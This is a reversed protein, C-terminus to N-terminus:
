LKYNLFIYHIEKESSRNQRQLCHLGQHFAANHLMETSTELRCLTALRSVKRTKHATGNRTYSKFASTVMKIQSTKYWLVSESMVKPIIQPKDAADYNDYNVDYCDSIAKQSM